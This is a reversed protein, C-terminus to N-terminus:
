RLECRNWASWRLFRGGQRRGAGAAPAARVQGPAEGGEKGVGGSRIDVRQEDEAVEEFVPDAVVVQGIGEIGLDAGQQAARDVASRADAEHGAVAVEQDALAEGGGRSDPQQRFGAFTPAPSVAIRSSCPSV